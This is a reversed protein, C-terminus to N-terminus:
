VAPPESPRPMEVHPGDYLSRGQRDRFRGGWVLGRAEAIRGWRDFLDTRSWDVRGAARPAVDAALGDQHRSRRAWTRKPAKLFPEVRGQSWLWRQRQPSRWTELVAPDIGAARADDLAAELRARFEPDLRGLERHVPPEAIPIAPVARLARVARARSPRPVLSATSDTANVM